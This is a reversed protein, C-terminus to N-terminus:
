DQERRRWRWGIAILALLGIISLADGALEPWRRSFEITLQSDDTWALMFVPTAVYLPEGGASTWSPFYNVRIWVPIPRQSSRDLEIELRNGTWKTRTVRAGTEADLEAAAIRDLLASLTDAASPSRPVLQVHPLRSIRRALPDDSDIAIVAGREAIASIQLFARERDSYDYDLLVAVRFNSADPERDLRGSRSLVLPSDLEGRVFREENLRLFDIQEADRGKLQMHSFVLIPERHPVVASGPTRTDFRYVEWPGRPTIRRSGDLNEALAKARPSHVVLQRVDYLELRAREREATSGILLRETTVNFFIGFSEGSESYRNRLPVTFYASPSAERFNITIAEAGRLGALGQMAFAAHGAGLEVLARGDGPQQPLQSLATQFERYDHSTVIPPADAPQTRLALVAVVAVLATRVPLRWRQPAFAFAYALLMPSFFYVAPMSRGPQLAVSNVLRNLPLICFALIALLCLSLALAERDRRGRAIVAAAIVAAIPALLSWLVVGPSVPDLATTALWSLHALMPLTWVASLAVAAAGVSLHTKVVAIRQARDPAAIVRAAFHAAFLFMANWIVHVNSLAISALLLSSAILSRRTKGLDLFFYYFGLLLAFSVVHSSLGVGFTASHSVGFRTFADTDVMYVIAVAAALLSAARSKSLRHSCAYVLVVVALCSAIQILAFATAPAFGLESLLAVLFYFLPPYFNPFPMGGFFEPMWGTVAPFTSKAYLSAVAYHATGDWSGPFESELVTGLYGFSSGIYVLVVLLPPWTARLWGPLRREAEVATYIFQPVRM